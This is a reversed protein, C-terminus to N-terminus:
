GHTYERLESFTVTTNEAFLRVTKGSVGYVRVTLTAVGDICFLGVSGEQLYRFSYTKGEELDIASEAIPTDGENFLLKLKGDAPSVSIMKYKDSRGSYDFALGFSGAGTYTFQGTILFREYATFAETYSFRAGATITTHDEGLVLERRDQFDSVISDVPKLSLTGDEAAVIQQVILNGGWASVESLSSPAESRRAWGVMYYDKGNDVHKAAYFLKGELRVPTNYPGYPTDSFAYWLTDDQGSYTVYYKGNLCFTDSCELNWFKKTPDSLIVGHYEFDKLDKSLTYHVVRAINYQSATITMEIVGREEDYYAQPDRFDLKQGLESAPTLSWGEVKEFSTLSSGKAVMVKEKYEYHDSAAHGTYFFYYFGDVKVVSGTGVWADQGGSRSAEIIPSDYETYHIFDTTTALYISHNYSDGAEKLYYIYYVGDEYYPMTDGVYPQSMKDIEPQFFLKYDYASEQSGPTRLKSFDKDYDPHAYEESTDDVAPPTTKRCAALLSLLVVLALLLCLFRTKM